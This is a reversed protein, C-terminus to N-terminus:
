GYAVSLVAVSSTIVRVLIPVYISGTRVRAVALLIGELFLGAVHPTTDPGSGARLAATILIAGMEGIRSRRLGELLFGRYLLEEFIPGLVALALFVLPLFMPTRALQDIGDDRGWPMGLGRVVFFRYGSDVTLLILGWILGQRLDPWKLGLYERVTPGPRPVAYFLLAIGFPAMFLYAFFFLADSSALVQVEVPLESVDYPAQTIKTVADPGGLWTILGHHLLFGVPLGALGAGLLIALVVGLVAVWSRPTEPPQPVQDDQAAIPEALM